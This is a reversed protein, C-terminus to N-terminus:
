KRSSPAAPNAPELPSEGGVGVPVDLIGNVGGFGDEEYRSAGPPKVWAGDVVFAYRWAGPPVAIVCEWTGDPAPGRLPTRAPDWGNFGGVVSVGTATPARVRLRVGLATDGHLPLDAVAGLSFVTPALPDPASTAWGYGSLRRTRGAALSIRLGATVRAQDFALAAVNSSQHTVSYLVFGRVRGRVRRTAELELQWTRDARTDGATSGQSGARTDGSRVLYVPYRDYRRAAFAAVARLGFGHAAELSSRLEIGPGDYGLAPDNSRNRRWTASAALAAGEGRDHALILAVDTREDEQRQATGIQTGTGAISKSIDRGPYFPRSYGGEVATSWPGGLVRLVRASCEPMDLDFAPVGERRFRRFSGAAEVATRAGSFMRYRLRGLLDRDTAGVAAEYGTMAAEVDVDLRDGGDHTLLGAFQGTARAHGSILRSAVPTTIGSGEPDVLVEDDHGAHAELTFGGSPELASVATVRGACLLALAMWPVSLCACASM